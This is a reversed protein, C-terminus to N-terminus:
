RQAGRMAGAVAAAAVFVARAVCFMALPLPRYQARAFFGFASRGLINM